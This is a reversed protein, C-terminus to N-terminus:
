VSPSPKTRLKMVREGEKEKSIFDWEMVTVSREFKFGQLNVESLFNSGLNRLTLCEQSRLHM